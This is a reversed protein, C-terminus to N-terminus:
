PSEMIGVLMCGAVGVESLVFFLAKGEMFKVYYMRGFREVM